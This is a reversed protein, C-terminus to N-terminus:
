ISYLAHGIVKGINRWRWRGQKLCVHETDTSQELAVPIKVYIKIRKKM